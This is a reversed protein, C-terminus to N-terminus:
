VAELQYVNDVSVCCFSFVVLSVYLLIYLYFILIGYEGHHVSHQWGWVIDGLGFGFQDLVLGPGVVVHALALWAWFVVWALRFWDPWFEVLDFTLWAM